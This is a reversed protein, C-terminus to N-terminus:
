GMTDARLLAAVPRASGSGHHVLTCADSGLAGGDRGGRPDGDPDAGERWPPIDPGGLASDAHRYAPRHRGTRSPGPIALTYQHPQSRLQGLMSGLTATSHKPQIIGHAAAEVAAIAHRYAKPADSHLAYLADWAIKLLDSASGVSLVQSASTMAARFAKTSAHSVRATLGDGTDNVRYASRGDALMMEVEWRMHGPGPDEGFPPSLPDPVPWPGGAGLIADLDATVAPLKTFGVGVEAAECKGGTDGAACCSMFGCPQPRHCRGRHGRKAPGLVRCARISYTM